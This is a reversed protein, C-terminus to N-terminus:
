ITQNASRKGRVFLLWGSTELGVVAGSGYLQINSERFMHAYGGITLMFVVSQGRKM